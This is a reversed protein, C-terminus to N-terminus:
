IVALAAERGGVQDDQYPQQEHLPHSDYDLVPDIM